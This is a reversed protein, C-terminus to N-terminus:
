HAHSTPVRVTAQATAVNGHADQAEYTVTYVRGTGGGQREARLQFARDDTGLTAGQIDEATAGDGAGDDPENSTVSVLRVAPDPDCGDAATISVDITVMQHNPPWLRAPTVSVSLSPPRTDAITVRQTATSTNGSADRATWTVTTTGLPFAAPADSTVQLSGDCVDSASPLGLDPSTGAPSVCEATVDPPAVISPAITDRVALTVGCTSTATGDSVALTVPFLGTGPFHVASMPGTATGESFAGTWAFTLPGCEADSSGGGDLAVETVAGACEAAYPGGADCVPPQNAPRRDMGMDLLKEEGIVQGSADLHGHVYWLKNADAGEYLIVIGDSDDFAVTPNSGRRADGETLSREPGVIRGAGDLVGSVYFLKRDDTGEYVVVVRGTHDFAVAPGFGRRGDGETLSFEQGVIRGAADISGSVYWLKLDDTGRYAVVVRGAADIAISPTYGRRADGETLSFEEGVLEGEATLYGSVYFLRQNSTGEYVVIVRGDPGVAVAPHSGRRGADDPLTLRRERGAFTLFRDPSTFRGSVYWLRQNDTGEYVVFLRGDASLAAAPALAMPQDALFHTLLVQRPFSLGSAGFAGVGVYLNTSDEGRWTILAQSGHLALSPSFGRPKQSAILEEFGEVEDPDTNVDDAGSALCVPDDDCDWIRLNYRGALETDTGSHLANVRGRQGDHAMSVWQFPLACASLNGIEASYDHKEVVALRNLQETRGLFHDYLADAEGTLVATIARPADGPAVATSLHAAYGGLVEVIGEFLLSSDQKVDLVLFFQYGDDHVTAFGAKKAVVLDIVQALTPSAPTAGDHNVVVQGDSGRYHLDLEIAHVEQALATHVQELTFQVGSVPHYHLVIPAHQFEHIHTDQTLAPTGGLLLAAAASLALAVSRLAIM